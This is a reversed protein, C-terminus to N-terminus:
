AVGGACAIGLEIKLKRSPAGQLKRLVGLRTDGVKDAIEQLSLGGRRLKILEANKEFFERAAAQREAEDDKIQNQKPKSNHPGRNAYPGRKKKDRDRDRRAREHASPEGRKTQDGAYPHPFRRSNPHAYIKDDRQMM